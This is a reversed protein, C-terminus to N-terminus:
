GSISFWRCFGHASFGGLFTSHKRLFTKKRLTMAGFGGHSPIEGGAGGGEFGGTREISSSTCIIYCMGLLALGQIKFSTM